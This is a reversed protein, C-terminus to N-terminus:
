ALEKLYVDIKQILDNLSINDLLFAMKGAVQLNEISFVSDLLIINQNEHSLKKKIKHQDAMQPLDTKIEKGIFNALSALSYNILINGVEMLADSELREIQEAPIDTGILMRALEKGALEPYFMIAKGNLDGHYPQIVMSNSSSELSSFFVEKDVLGIQPIQFHVEYNKGCLESLALAAQGMGMNFIEILIDKHLDQLTSKQENM